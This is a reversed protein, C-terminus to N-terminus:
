YNRRQYPLDKPIVKVFALQKYQIKYVDDMYKRYEKQKDKATKKKAVYSSEIGELGRIYDALKEFPDLLSKLAQRWEGFWEYYYPPLEDLISM